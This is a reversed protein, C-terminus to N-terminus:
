RLDCCAMAGQVSTAHRVSSRVAQAVADASMEAVLDVDAETPGSALVFSVDGDYSTHLPKIARALGDHVRQAVRNVEVKSLKADTLIVALTTNTSLVPRGRVFRRYPDNLALWSGERSRAGALIRGSEALVDGVCNTVVLACVRLKGESLSVCGFGGKMRTEIGAWKGVTAGTGVGVTGQAPVEGSAARCAAYGAAADPRVTRSGINLDFIVAAPVIPVKVWPTQYGIGHEELWRMVGDAAALGFASGGTLLVAHVEQMKRENSLLELERGGPSSGRVDCGGVTEPPCLIVSCGTIAELDTRHGVRFGSPLM